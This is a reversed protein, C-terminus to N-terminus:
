RQVSSQLASPSSFEPLHAARGAASPCSALGLPFLAATRSLVTSVKRLGRPELSNSDRRVDSKPVGFQCSKLAPHRARDNTCLPAQDEPFPTPCFDSSPSEGNEAPSDYRPVLFNRARPVGSCRILPQKRHLLKLGYRCLPSSASLVNWAIDNMSLSRLKHIGRHMSREVDLRVRFM